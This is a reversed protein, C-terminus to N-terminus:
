PHAPWRLTRAKALSAARRAREEPTITKPKGRSLAALIAAADIPRGCHPCKTKM